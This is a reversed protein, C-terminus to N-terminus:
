ENWRRIGNILGAEREGSIPRVLIRLERRVREIFEGGNRAERIASTAFALHDEVGWGEGLIKIRRLASLGREMAEGTLWHKSLGMQGFEVLEKRQDLLVFSGNAHADVIVAHFSNTGLDIVLARIPAPARKNRGGEDASRTM